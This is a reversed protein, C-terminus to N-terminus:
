RYERGEAPEALGAVRRVDRPGTAVAVGLLAALDAASAVVARQRGLLLDIAIELLVCLGREIAAVDRERDLVVNALVEAREVRRVSPCRCRDIVPDPPWISATVVSWVGRR